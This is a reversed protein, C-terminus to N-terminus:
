TMLNNGLYPESKCAEQRERRSQQSESMHKRAQSIQQLQLKKKANELVHLIQRKNKKM